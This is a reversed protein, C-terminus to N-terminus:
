RFIAVSAEATDSQTTGNATASRLRLQTTSKLTPANSPVGGSSHVQLPFNNAAGNSASGLVPAYNADPMATTFNVTYDGVGNDTISSVNGSARIAVTVAGVFNVWARCAYIPAGGSASLATKVRTDNAVFSAGAGSDVYAKNVAQTGATPTPVIPSSSFTKVGAVTQDGTLTVATSSIAIDGSGLISTGNVTKINTGSVLTAQKANLQTQIASTVDSLYGLQTATVGSVAVKGNADSVLARSATLNAGAITSAGGTITAQKADLATQTATSVPKDADSTNDVNGLGVMAKTIGGVTGTFTPSALNAKLNLATQTATSVPKALDSTNDVNPLGVDAKNLVVAGTRGAVSILASDAGHYVGFDFTTGNTYTIRYTDTTGASGDGSVKVLSVIGNGADGTDGKDGKGFPIGVSWDGSTATQKFYLLGEDTALFSFNKPQIDFSSRESALGVANVTFPDGKPGVPGTPIGFTIKGDNPNYVATAQSGSVLTQAQAQISKIENSKQTATAAANQAVERAALAIARDETSQEAKQTAIQAQATATAAHNQVQLLESLQAHIDMLETISAQLEMFEDARSAISIIKDIDNGIKIIDNVRNALTQLASTTKAWYFDPKPEVATGASVHLTIREVNSASGIVDSVRIFTGTKGGVEDVIRTNVMKATLPASGNLQSIIAGHTSVNIVQADDNVFPVDISTGDTFLVTAKNYYVTSAPDLWIEMAENFSITEAINPKNLSIDIDIKRNGLYTGRNIDDTTTQMLDVSNVIQKVDDINELLAHLLQQNEETQAFAGILVVAEDLAKLTDQIQEVKEAAIKLSYLDVM